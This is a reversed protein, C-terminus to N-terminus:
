KCSYSSNTRQSLLSFSKLRPDTILHTLWLHLLVLLLIWANRIQHSLHDETTWCDLDMELKIPFNPPRITTWCDLERSNQFLLRELQQFFEKKAASVSLCSDTNRLKLLLISNRGMYVFFSNKLEFTM